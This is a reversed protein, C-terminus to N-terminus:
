DKPKRYWVSWMLNTFIVIKFTFIVIKFNVIVTMAMLQFKSEAIYVTIKWASEM